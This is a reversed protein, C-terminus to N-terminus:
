QSKEPHGDKESDQRVNRKRLGGADSGDDIKDESHISDTSTTTTTTSTTTTTGSATEEAVPEVSSSKDSRRIAGSKKNVARCKRCVFDSWEQDKEICAYVSSCHGCSVTVEDGMIMDLVRDLLSHNQTRTQTIVASVTPGTPLTIQVPTMPSDQPATVRVRAVAPTISHPRLTGTSVSLASPTPSQFSSPPLKLPEAEWQKQLLEAKKRANEAIKKKHESEQTLEMQRKVEMIYRQQKLLLDLDIGQWLSLKSEPDLQELKQSYELLLNFNKKFDMSEKVRNLKKVQKDKLVEM